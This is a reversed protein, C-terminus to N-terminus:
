HCPRENKLGKIFWGFSRQVDEADVGHFWHVIGDRSRIRLVYGM